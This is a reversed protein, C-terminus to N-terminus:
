AAAPPAAPANAGPGPARPAPTLAPGPGPARVGTGRPARPAAPEVPMAGPVGAAGTADYWEFLARASATLSALEARPDLASEDAAGPADHDSDSM